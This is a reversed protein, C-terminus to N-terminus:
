RFSGAVAADLRDMEDVAAQLQDGLDAWSTYANADQQRIMQFAHVYAQIVQDSGCLSISPISRDPRIMSRHDRLTRVPEALANGSVTLTSM